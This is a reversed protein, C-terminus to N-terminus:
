YRLTQLADKYKEQETNFVVLKEKILPIMLLISYLIIFLVASM